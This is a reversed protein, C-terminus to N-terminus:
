AAVEPRLLDVVSVSWSRLNGYAKGNKPKVTSYVIYKAGEKTPHWTNGKRVQLGRECLLQNVKQPSLGGLYKKGLSTASVYVMESIPRYEALKLVDIGTVKVVIQNATLVADPGILNMDLALRKAASFENALQEINIKTTSEKPQSETASYAGTKRISPLVVEVVWDQFRSAKPLTSRMVMRYVDSEPIINCPITANTPKFKVINKCLDRVAKTTNTYGLSVAVDRAIFWPNGEHDTVRLKGFEENEFIRIESM